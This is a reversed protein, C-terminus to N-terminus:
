SNTEYYKDISMEYRNIASNLPYPIRLYFKDPIAFEMSGARPNALMILWAYNPDAYYKYSLNDLRMSNKDFTIYLDSSAKEIEIKPVVINDGDRRFRSYRNYYEM